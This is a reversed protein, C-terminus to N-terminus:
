RRGSDLVTVREYVKDGSTLQMYIYVDGIEATGGFDLYKSIDFTETYETGASVSKSAGTGGSMNSTFSVTGDVEPTFKVTLIGDGSLSSSTSRFGSGRM